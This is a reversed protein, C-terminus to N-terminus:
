NATVPRGILWRWDPDQNVTRTLTVPAAQYTTGGSSLVQTATLRVTTSDPGTPHSVTEVTATIGTCAASLQAATIQRWAQENLTWPDQGPPMQTNGYLAARRTNDTRAGRFDCWCLANLWAQALAAPARYVNPAPEDPPPTAAAPAPPAAASRPTRRNVEERGHVVPIGETGSM